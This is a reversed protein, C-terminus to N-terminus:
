FWGYSFKKEDPKVETQKVTIDDVRIFRGDGKAIAALFDDTTYGGIGRNYAVPLGENLCFETIPFMEMLSSGTFLTQEKQVYLNQARYNNLKMEKERNFHAVLEQTTQRRAEEMIQEQETM